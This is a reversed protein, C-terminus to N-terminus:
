CWSQKFVKKIVKETFCATWLCIIGKTKNFRKLLHAILIFELKCIFSFKLHPIPDWLAFDYLYQIYTKKLMLLSWLTLADPVRLNVLIVSRYRSLNHLIFIIVLIEIKKKSFVDTGIYLEIEKRGIKECKCKYVYLKSCSIRFSYNFQIQFRSSICCVIRWFEYTHNLTVWNRCLWHIM